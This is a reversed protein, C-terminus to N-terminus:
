VVPGVSTTGGIGYVPPYSTCCPRQQMPSITGQLPVSIAQLRGRADQTVEFGCYLPHGPLMSSPVHQEPGVTASTPAAGLLTDHPPDTTNETVIVSPEVIVEEAVECFDFDFIPFVPLTGLASVVTITLVLESVTAIVDLVVPAAKGVATPSKPKISAAAPAM